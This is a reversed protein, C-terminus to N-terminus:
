KCAAIAVAALVSMLTMTTAAPGVTHRCTFVTYNQAADISIVYAHTLLRKQAIEVTSLLPM